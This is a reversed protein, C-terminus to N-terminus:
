QIKQFLPELICSNYVIASYFRTAHIVDEAEVTEKLKLKAVAKYLRIITELKRKSKIIFSSKYLGIYYDMIM